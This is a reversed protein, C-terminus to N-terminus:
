VYPSSKGYHPVHKIKFPWALSRPIDLQITRRTVCPMGMIQLASVGIRFAGIQM